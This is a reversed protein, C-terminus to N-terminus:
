SQAAILGEETKLNFAVILLLIITPLFHLNAFPVLFWSLASIILPLTAAHIAVRYAEGYSLKIQKLRGILMVLLAILFFTLLYVSFAVVLVLFLFIVLIPALANLFPTIQGIWYSVKAQDIILSFEKALPRINIGNNDEYIFSDATIWVPTQYTKFQDLNFQNQTDIVLLNELDWNKANPKNTTEVKKMQELWSVPLPFKYPEPANISVKGEKITVVLDAPYWTAGETKILKTFSLLAPVFIVSFIVTLILALVMVLKYYYKIAAGNTESRVVRFHIPDYINKAITRFINM